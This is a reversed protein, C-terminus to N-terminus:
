IQSNVTALRHEYGDRCWRSTIQASFYHESYSLSNMGYSIFPVSLFYRTRPPEFRQREERYLRGVSQDVLLEERKHYSRLLSRLRVVLLISNVALYATRQWKTILNIDRTTLPPLPYPLKQRLVCRLVSASLSFLYCPASPPLNQQGKNKTILNIDATMLQPTLRPLSTRIGAPRKDNRCIGSLVSYRILVRINLLLFLSYKNVNNLFLFQLINLLKELLHGAFM